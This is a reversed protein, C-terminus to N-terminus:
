YLPLSAVLTIRRHGSVFLMRLTLSHSIARLVTKLRDHFLSALFNRSSTVLGHAVCLPKVPRLDYLTMSQYRALVPYGM